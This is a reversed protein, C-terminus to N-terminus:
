VSLIGDCVVIYHVVPHWIGDMQPLNINLLILKVQHLNTNILNM